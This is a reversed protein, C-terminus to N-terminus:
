TLFTPCRQQAILCGYRFDREVRATYLFRFTNSQKNIKSFSFWNNKKLNWMIDRSSRSPELYELSRYRRLQSSSLSDDCLFRPSVSPWRPWWSSWCTCWFYGCSKLYGLSLVAQTLVSCLNINIKFLWRSRSM